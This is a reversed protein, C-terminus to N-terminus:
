FNWHRMTAEVARVYEGKEISGGKLFLKSIPVISAVKGAPIPPFIAKDNGTITKV